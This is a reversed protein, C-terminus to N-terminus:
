EVNVSVPTEPVAEQVISPAQTQGQKAVGVALAWKRDVRIKANPTGLCAELDGLTVEIYSVSGAPRGRTKIDNM